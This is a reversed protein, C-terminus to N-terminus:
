LGLFAAPQRKASIQPATSFTAFAETASENAANSMNLRLQHRPRCLRM